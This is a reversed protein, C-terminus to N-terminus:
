QRKMWSSIRLIELSSDPELEIHEEFHNLCMDLEEPLGMLAKGKPKLHSCADVEM